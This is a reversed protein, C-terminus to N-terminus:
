FRKRFLSFVSVTQGCMVGDADEFRCFVEKARVVVQNQFSNSVYQFRFPVTKFISVASNREFAAVGAPRVAAKTYKEFLDHHDM